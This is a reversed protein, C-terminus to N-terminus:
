VIVITKTKDLFLTKPGTLNISTNISFFEAYVDAYIKLDFAVIAFQGLRLVPKMDRLPLEYEIFADCDWLAVPRSNDVLNSTAVGVHGLM